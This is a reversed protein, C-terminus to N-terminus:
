SILCQFTVTVNRITASKIADCTPGFVEIANHSPDTYDWGDTRTADRPIKDQDGFVDIKEVSSFTNPAPGVQFTCTAVIGIIDALATVLDATSAVSYYSPTTARPYGGAVAARTLTMDATVDASTAVGVVFTPFGATRAAEIAMVAADADSGMANNVNCTPEGDTALLIFKPNQDTLGGLYTAAATVGARTPTSTSMLVNGTPGTRATVAAIIDAGRSAGIGVAAGPGVGCRADNGQGDGFFKLGWNVTTDTAAVVTQVAQAMQSWKSNAGCNTTCPMGGDPTTSAAENMSGSVDMLILINPLLKAAEKNLAGCNAEPSSTGMGGDTQPTPGDPLLSADLGTRGAAGTTGATGGTGGADSTNAGAAGGSGASGSTPPPMTGVKYGYGCGVSIVALLLCPSSTASRVM